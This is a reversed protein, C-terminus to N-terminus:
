EQPAPEGEPQQDGGDEVAASDDVAPQVVPAGGVAAAATDVRRAAQLQKALAEDLEVVQGCKLNHAPEDLLVLCKVKKQKAM